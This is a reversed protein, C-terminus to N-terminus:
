KIAQNLTTLTTLTTSLVQNVRFRIAAMFEVYKGIEYAGISINKAVPGSINAINSNATGDSIIKLLDVCKDVSRKLEAVNQESHIKELKLVESVLPAIDAFRDIFTGLKMKSQDSDASFFPDVQAILAERHNQTKKFLATHDQLSLKDEKNSIFGSLIFNYQILVDNLEKYMEPSMRNLLKSYGLMDGNFGEPVSVLIHRYDTFNVHATKKALSYHTTKIDRATKTDEFYSKIQIGADFLKTTLSPVVNRFTDIMNALFEAEMALREMQSELSVTPISSHNLKM